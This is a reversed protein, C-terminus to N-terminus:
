PFIWTFIWNGELDINTTNKPKLFFFPCLIDLTWRLPDCRQMKFQGCTIKGLKLCLVESKVKESELDINISRLTSKALDLECIGAAEKDLCACACM